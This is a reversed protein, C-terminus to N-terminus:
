AKTIVLLNNMGFEFYSHSVKHKKGRDIMDFLVKKNFYNKHEKIERESILRLKFSLFELVKKGRFSPTTFIAKGGKKLVRLSEDIIIKPNDIHELFAFAVVCDVSENPLPIKNRLPNKILKVKPDTNDKLIKSDILPDIGIYNKLRVGRKLAFHYFRIKPGCGLDALVLSDTKTLHKLGNSFRLKRVVPELLEEDHNHM